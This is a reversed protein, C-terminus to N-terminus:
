YVKRKWTRWTQLVVSLLILALGIYFGKSLYQNEKYLVFALLIGYVPELNYTLNVTFPSIKKLASLSLFYAWNTCLWALILLGTWDQFSPWLHDAPFKQLYFPLFLTLVVLGGSLEVLSLQLAPIRIALPKNFITFLAALFSAVLGLIIGIKYQPDFRFILLIGAIVLVGLLLEIMDWKRKRILPEVSATFFGVASFCVLSVSVNAYKISGYFFVWHMAVLAGIATLSIIDKWPMKPWQGKWLLLVAFTSVTIAIRFWVLLGENLTIYRGLVGTFGALLVALHLQILAQRM